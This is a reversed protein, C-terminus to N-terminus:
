DLIVTTQKKLNSLQNVKQVDPSTSATSAPHIPINKIQDQV